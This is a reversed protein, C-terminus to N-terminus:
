RRLFTIKFDIINFQDIKRVFITFINHFKTIKLIVREKWGGFLGITKLFTRSILGRLIILIEQKSPNVKPVKRYM